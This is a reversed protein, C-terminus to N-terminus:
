VREVVVDHDDIRISDTGGDLVIGALAGAQNLALAVTPPQETDNTTPLLLSALRLPLRAVTSYTLTPAPRLVGYAPSVWGLLPSTEGEHIEAKLPPAAFTRVFVAGGSVASARAWGDTDLTLPVEAFQFRVDIRHEALGHLDDVIVWYWPKVFLVRRRHVVPDPLRDYAHHSADALDFTATSV